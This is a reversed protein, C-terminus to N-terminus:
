NELYDVIIEKADNYEKELAFSFFSDLIDPTHTYSYQIHRNKLIQMIDLYFRSYRKDIYDGLRIQYM